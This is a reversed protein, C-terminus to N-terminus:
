KGDLKKRYSIQMKVKTYGISEYFLHSEHRTINSRVGVIPIGKGVSWEEAHRVLAKGIGKRRHAADTVMSAIQVRFPSEVTQLIHVHIWGAVKGKIEAVACLHDPMTSIRKLRAAMEEPTTPYGLQGSLVSMTEADSELAPRLTM